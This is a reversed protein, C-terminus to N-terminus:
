RRWIAKPGRPLPAFPPMSNGRTTHGYLDRGSRSHRLGKSRSSRLRHLRGLLLDLAGEGDRAVTAVHGEATLNFALGDAIHQEDEVILIRSAM